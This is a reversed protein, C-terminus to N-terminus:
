GGQPDPILDLVAGDPVNCDGATMQPALQVNAFRLVYASYEKNWNSCSAQMLEEITIDPSVDMEISDGTDTDRVSIRM